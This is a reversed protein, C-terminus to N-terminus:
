IFLPLAISIGPHLDGHIYNDFFVMKLILRTGLDALKMKLKHAASGVEGPMSMFQSIPRGEMLTEVMVNRTVFGEIPKPFLAWKENAFKKAFRLMHSAELRLDLQQNMCEAFQRCTEGLSLIELSPLTDMFNAFIGLLEMDTKVLQEVHPHIMKVAVKLGNTSAEASKLLGSFVQAVSGTGLPVPDLVLKEKWNEGFALSMTREIVEPAYSIEVDDQFREIRAVLSPPFLDPRTSAWQAMKIFCPGLRQIAWVLYGYTMNEIAPISSGFLYNAPVLGALPVGLVLYTLVRELYRASKELTSLANQARSVFYSWFTSVEEAVEEKVSLLVVEAVPPPPPAIQPISVPIDEACHAKFAFTSFTATTLTAAAVNAKYSSNYSYRSKQQVQRM